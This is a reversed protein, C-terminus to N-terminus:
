GGSLAQLIFVKSDDNVADSLGDRDRVPKEDVFVAVHQRLRNQDDLIYSRIEPQKQFVYELVLRVSNGQGEGSPCDIHRALNSTFIVQPM